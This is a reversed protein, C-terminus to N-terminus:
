YDYFWVFCFKFCCGHERNASPMPDVLEGSKLAANVEAIFNEESVSVSVENFTYCGESAGLPLRYRLNEAMWTQGNVVICQYTTMDREDVFTTRTVDSIPLTGTNDDSCGYWSLLVGIVFIVNKMIGGKM